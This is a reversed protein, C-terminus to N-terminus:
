TVSGLIPLHHPVAMELLPEAPGAGAFVLDSGLGVTLVAWTQMNAHNGESGVSM